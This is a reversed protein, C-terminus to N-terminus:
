VTDQTNVLLDTFDPVDPVALYRGVSNAGRICHTGDHSTNSVRL